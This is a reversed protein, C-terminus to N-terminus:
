PKSWDFGPCDENGGGKNFKKDNRVWTMFAKDWDLMTTGRSQHHEKFHEFVDNIRNGNIGHKKAFQLLNESLIFDHPLQRRRAVMDKNKVNKINKVEQKHNAAPQSSTLHQNTQQNIQQNIENEETQYSDWNIITIITFRNTSKTTINSTSKLAQLCTRVTQQSLGTEKSAQLRGFIFQGPDLTVTRWNVQMTIQKYTAKMLCWAWLRFISPNGWVSSELTKRWLKIYGRYM